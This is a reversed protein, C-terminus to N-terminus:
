RGRGRSADDVAAGVLEPWRAVWCCVHDFDDVVVIRAEPHRAHFSAGVAPPVNRDLRGFYHVQGITRPLAPQRAPNLSGDLPSYGHVDAWLDIDLNAAITVVGTAEPVERAMLWALTGGGSYGILVVQEVPYRALLDRLGAVMAAVVEPSYRRHTWLLPDCPGKDAPALHCPRGLFLRPGRDRAMLELAVPLRPTPDAAVAGEGLWPTGDHEIYVHLTGAGPPVGAVYAQLGFDGGRVGIASFGLAGARENFRDAPTACGALAAILLLVVSRGALRFPCAGPTRQSGAIRERRPPRTAM